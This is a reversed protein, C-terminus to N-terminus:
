CEGSDVGKPQFVGMDEAEAFWVDVVVGNGLGDVEVWVEDFGSEFDARRGHEVRCEHWTIPKVLEHTVYGRLSEGEVENGQVMEAIVEVDRRRNRLELFVDFGNVLHVSERDPDGLVGHDVKIM